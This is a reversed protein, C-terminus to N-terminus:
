MFKDFLKKVLDLMLKNQEQMQKQLEQQKQLHHQMAAMM